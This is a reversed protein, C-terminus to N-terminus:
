PFTQHKLHRIFQDIGDLHFHARRLRAALLKIKGNRRIHDFALSRIREPLDRSLNCQGSETRALTLVAVRERLDGASISAM